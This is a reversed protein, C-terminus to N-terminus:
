RFRRGSNKKRGVAVQEQRYTYNGTPTGYKFEYKFPTALLKDVLDYGDVKMKTKLDEEAKQKAIQATLDAASTPLHRHNRAFDQIVQPLSGNVIYDKEVDLRDKFTHAKNCKRCQLRWRDELAAFVAMVNGNSATELYEGIVFSSFGDVGKPTFAMAM